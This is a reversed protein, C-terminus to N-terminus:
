QPPPPLEEYGRRLPRTSVPEVNAFPIPTRDPDRTQAVEGGVPEISQGAVASLVPLQLQTWSQQWDSGVGLKLSLVAAELTGDAFDELSGPFQEADLPLLVVKTSREFDIALDKASRNYLVQSRGSTATLHIVRRPRFTYLTDLMVRTEVEGAPIAFRPLDAAPRYRRSPFNRNLPVGRANDRVKHVLGDPNGARFFVVENNKLLGPRRSLEEALQELWRVAIRDEGNLGAIVLTRTGNNGLHMSHMPRGETTKGVVKWESSAPNSERRKAISTAAPKPPPNQGLQSISSVPVKSSGTSIVAHNAPAASQGPAIPAQNPPPAVNESAPQPAPVPEAVQTANKVSDSREVIASARNNVREVVQDPDFATRELEDLGPLPVAASKRTEAVAQAILDVSPRIAQHVHEVVAADVETASSAPVSQTAQRLRQFADGIPASTDDQRSTFGDLVSKTHEHIQSVLHEVPVRSTGSKQPGALNWDFSSRAATKDFDPEGTPTPQQLYLYGAGAAGLTLVTILTRVSTM